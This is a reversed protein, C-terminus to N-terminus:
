LVLILTDDAYQLHTIEGPTLHLVVGNIHGAGAGALLIRFLAEEIFTFLLPSLPDGQRVGRKNRFFAGIEMNILIATKGGLV